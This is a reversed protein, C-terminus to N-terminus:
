KVLLSWHGKRTKTSNLVLKLTPSERVRTANMVLKLQHGGEDAVEHKTSDLM